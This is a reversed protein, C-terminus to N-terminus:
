LITKATKNYLRCIEVVQIKKNAVELKKKPYSHYLKNVPVNTKYAVVGLVQYYSKLDEVKETEILYQLMPLALDDKPRSSLEYWLHQTLDSRSMQDFKKHLSSPVHTRKNHWKKGTCQLPKYSAEKVVARTKKSSSVDRKKLSTPKKAAAMQKKAISNEKKILSTEKKAFSTLPLILILLILGFCRM